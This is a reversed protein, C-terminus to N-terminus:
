VAKQSPSSPIGYKPPGIRAPACYLHQLATGSNEWYIASLCDKGAQGKEQLLLAEKRYPFKGNGKRLLM